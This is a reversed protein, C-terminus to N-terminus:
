VTYRRSIYFVNIECIKRYNNVTKNIKLSDFYFQCFETQYSKLYQNKLFLGLGLHEDFKHNLMSNSSLLKCNAYYSLQTTLILSPHTEKDSPFFLLTYLVLFLKILFLVFNTKIKM